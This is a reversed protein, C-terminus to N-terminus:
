RTKQNVTTLLVVYQNFLNNNAKMYKTVIKNWSKNQITWINCKYEKSVELWGGHSQALTNIKPSPPLPNSGLSFELLSKRYIEKSILSASCM